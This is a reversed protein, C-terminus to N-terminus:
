VVITNNDHASGCIKELMRVHSILSSDDFYRAHQPCLRICAHCKICVGTVASPDAADISGMPCVKSCKGCNICLEKNLKPKAKLFSAPSGDEELPTYYPGPPTNGPINLEGMDGSLIKEGIKSGFSEIEAMDDADPRGAGMLDSMVHRCVFAGAGAIAFGNERMVMCLESLSDDFSRNGYCVVAAGVAGDSRINKVAPLIKNPIRGAYTPVAAVVIDDEGFSHTKQREEPLNLNVTSIEGINLVAAIEKAATEAVSFTGGTPSFSVITIKKM